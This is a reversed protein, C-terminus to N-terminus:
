FHPFDNFIHLIVPCFAFTCFIEQFHISSCFVSILRLKLLHFSIFKLVINYMKDNNKVKKKEKKKKKKYKTEQLIGNQGRHCTAKLVLIPSLNCKMVLNCLLELTSQICTTHGYHM